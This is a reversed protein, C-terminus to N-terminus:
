IISALSMSHPVYIYMFGGYIGIMHKTHIHLTATTKTEPIHVAIIHSKPTTTPQTEASIHMLKHDTHWYLIPPLALERKLTATMNFNILITSGTMHNISIVKTHCVKMYTERLHGKFIRYTYLTTATNTEPAVCPLM